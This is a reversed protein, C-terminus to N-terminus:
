AEGARAKIAAVLGPALRYGFARWTELIPAVADIRGENKLAILLGASGIVTLGLRRAFERGARDDILVAASLERALALAAREGAGLSAPAPDSSFGDPDACLRIDGSDRARVM